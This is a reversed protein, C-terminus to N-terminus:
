NKENGNLLIEKITITPDAFVDKEDIVSFFLNSKNSTSGRKQAQIKM